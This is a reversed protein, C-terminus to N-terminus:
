DTNNAANCETVHAKMLSNKFLYNYSIYWYQIEVDFPAM